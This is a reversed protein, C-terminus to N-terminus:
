LEFASPSSSVTPLGPFLLSRPGMHLGPFLLSSLGRAAPPISGRRGTAEDKFHSYHMKACHLHFPFGLFANTHPQPRTPGLVVNRGRREDNIFVNVTLAVNKLGTGLGEM